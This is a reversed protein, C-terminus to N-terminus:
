PRAFVAELHDVEALIPAAQAVKADPSGATKLRTVLSDFTAVEATGGRALVAPKVRNWVADISDTAAQLGAADKTAHRVEIERGFYDLLTVDTPVGQVAPELLRASLETLRNSVILATAKDKAPVAKELEVLSNSIEGEPGSTATGQVVFAADARLSDLLSSAVSWNSAIVADYLDEAHHGLAVTGNTRSSDASIRTEQTTTKETTKACSTVLLATAILTFTRLSVRHM